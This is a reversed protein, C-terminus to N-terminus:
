KGDVYGEQILFDQVKKLSQQLDFRESWWDARANPDSNLNFLWEIATAKNQIKEGALCFKVDSPRVVSMADLVARRFIAKALRKEPMEQYNFEPIMQFGKLM